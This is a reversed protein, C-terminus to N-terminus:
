DENSLKKIYEVVHKDPIFRLEYCPIVNVLEGLFGLIFELGKHNYFTPFICAFLRAAGESEKMPVLENKPGRSLFYVRSLPSRAPSSLMAEGHWPTGYMWIKRDLQRLVIRDDSLITVNPDDHWLRAMTTKGAGSQGVFLHGQGSSDILGCSHIDVGRGQALYNILLLEDLPYELPYVPRDTDFYPAHFLVEGWTFDKGIRAVKYPIPGFAPSTLIFNFFGNERCLHWVSGSDFLKEGKTGKSLDKWATTISIDPDGKDILFNRTPGEVQLKMDPTDSTLAITTDGIRITIM